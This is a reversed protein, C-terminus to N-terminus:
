NFVQVRDSGYELVYLESRHLALATPVKLEGLDDGLGSFQRLLTSGDRSFVCVRHAWGDAALIDGNPAFDVDHAGNLTGVGIRRVFVGTRTFLSLCTGSTILLHGGDPTFRLGVTDSLQGDAEGHPGFALVLEGTTVDFLAVQNEQCNSGVAIMDASAAIAWASGNIVSAGITRVHVGALTFEQPSLCLRADRLHDRMFLSSHLAQIFRLSHVLVQVRKNFYDAVLINRSRPSFCLKRPLCLQGPGRGRAGFQNLLAGDLTSYVYIKHTQPNSVVVVAGDPSIALGMHGRGAIDPGGRLPIYRVPAGDISSSAQFVSVYLSIVIVHCQLMGRAANGRLRVQLLIEIRTSSIWVHLTAALSAEKSPAVNVTLTGGEVHTGVVDWGGCEGCVRVDVDAPSVTRVVDGAADRCAVIVKNEENQMMWETHSVISRAADVGLQVYTIEAVTSAICVDRGRLMTSLSPLTNWEHLTKTATILSDGVTDFDLDDVCLQREIGELTAKHADLEELQWELRKDRSSHARKVLLCAERMAESARETISALSHALGDCSATINVALRGIGGDCRSTATNLGRLAETAVHVDHPSLRPSPPSLSLYARLHPFLFISALILLTSISLLPRDHILTLLSFDPALLSDLFHSSFLDSVGCIVVAVPLLLVMLLVVTFLYSHTFLAAKRPM